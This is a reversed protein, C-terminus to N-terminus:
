FSTELFSLIVKHEVKLQSTFYFNFFSYDIMNYEIKPEREVRKKKNLAQSISM